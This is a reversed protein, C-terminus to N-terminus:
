TITQIAKLCNSSLRSVDPGTVGDAWSFFFVFLFFACFSVSVNLWGVQSLKSISGLSVEVTGSQVADEIDRASSSERASMQSYDIAPQSPLGNEKSINTKNHLESELEDIFNDGFIVETNGRNENSAVHVPSAQAAPIPSEDGTVVAATDAAM